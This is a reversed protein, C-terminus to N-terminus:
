ALRRISFTVGARDALVPLGYRSDYEVPVGMLRYSGSSEAPWQQSFEMVARGCDDALQLCRNLWLPHMLWLAGDLASRDPRWETGLVYQARQVTLYERLVADGTARPSTTIASALTM